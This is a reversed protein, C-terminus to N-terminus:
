ACDPSDLRKVKPTQHLLYVPARGDDACLWGVMCECGCSVVHCAQVQIAVLTDLQEILKIRNSGLELIRLDTLASLGTICSIKNSALYLEQLPCPALASIPAM